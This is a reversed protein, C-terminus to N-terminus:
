CVDKLLSDALTAAPSTGSALPTLIQRAEDKRGALALCLGLISLADADEPHSALVEERLLREAEEFSDVVVHSFAKGIVAPVFGPKVALVGDYIARAEGVFGKQCGANAIDLLRQVQADSLM